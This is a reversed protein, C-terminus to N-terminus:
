FLLMQTRKQNNNIRSKPQAGFIEDKQTGNGRFRLNIFFTLGFSELKKKNPTM